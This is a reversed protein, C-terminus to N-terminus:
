LMFRSVKQGYEKKHSNSGKKGEQIRIITKTDHHHTMFMFM